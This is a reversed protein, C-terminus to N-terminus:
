QSGDKSEKPEGCFYALAVPLGFEKAAKKIEETYKYMPGCKCNESICFTRDKYCIM